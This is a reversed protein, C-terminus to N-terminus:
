EGGFVVYLTITSDIIYKQLMIDTDLDIKKFVYEGSELDKVKIAYYKLSYTSNKITANTLRNYISNSLSEKLTQKEVITQPAINRTFDYINNNIDTAIFNIKIKRRLVIHLTLDENSYISYSYNFADSSTCSTYNSYTTGSSNYSTFINQSARWGIVDYETNNAYKYYQKFEFLSLSYSGGGTTRYLRTTGLLMTTDDDIDYYANVLLGDDWLAYIYPTVSKLTVGIKGMSVGASFLRGDDSLNRSWGYLVDKTSTFYNKDLSFNNLAMSITTTYYIYNDSVIYSKINTLKDKDFPHAIDTVYTIDVNSTTDYVTYKYCLKFSIISASNSADYVDFVRNGLTDLKFAFNLAIMYEGSKIFTITKGFSTDNSTTYHDIGVINYNNGEKFYIYYSGRLSSIVSGAKIRPKELDISEGIFLDVGNDIINYDKIDEGDISFGYTAYAIVSDGEDSEYYIKIIAYDNSEILDWVEKKSTVTITTDKLYVTYNKINIDVTYLTDNRNYKLQYNDLINSLDSENALRYSNFEEYSVGSRIGNSYSLDGSQLINDSSTIEYSSVSSASYEFWISYWGGLMNYLRFELRMRLSTMEITNKKYGSSTSNNFSDIVQKYVGNDYEYILVKLFSTYKADTDYKTHDFTSYRVGYSDYIIEPIDIIDGVTFDSSKLRYVGSSEDFIYDDSKITPTIEEEKLLYILSTKSFNDYRSSFLIAINSSFTFNTSYDLLKDYLVNGYDDVEYVSWKIDNEAEKYVYKTYLENMNLEEGVSVSEGNKVEEILFDTLSSTYLTMFNTGAQYLDGDTLPNYGYAEYVIDFYSFKYRSNKLDLEKTSDTPTITIKTDYNKDSTFFLNVMEIYSKYNKQIDIIKNDSFDTQTYGAYFPVEYHYTYSDGELAEYDCSNIGVMSDYSICLRRYHFPFSFMQEMSGTSGGYFIVDQDLTTGLDITYYYLGTSAKFEYTITGYTSANLIEPVYVDSSNAEDTSLVKNQDCLFYTFERAYGTTRNYYDSGSLNGTIDSNYASLPKILTYHGGSAVIYAYVPHFFDLIGATKDLGTYHTPVLYVGDDLTAQTNVFSKSFGIFSTIRFLVQYLVITQERSEGVELNADWNYFSVNLTITDALNINSINIYVIQDISTRDLVSLDEDILGNPSSITYTQVEFDGGSNEKFIPGRYHSNYEIRLFTGSNNKEIYTGSEIIDSPFELWGYKDALNGKILSGEVINAEYEIDYTGNNIIKEEEWKAYLTLDCMKFYLDGNSVDCVSSLASDFYWGAFTYGVKTPSPLNPMSKASYYIDSLPSELTEAYFSIKFQKDGYYEIIADKPDEIDKSSCSSLIFGSFIFVAILIFYKIRRM